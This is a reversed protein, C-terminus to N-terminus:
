KEANNAPGADVAKKPATTPVPGADPVAFDPALVSDPAPPYRSLYIRMSEGLNKLSSKCRAPRQEPFLWYYVM